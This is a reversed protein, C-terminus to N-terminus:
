APLGRRESLPIACLHLSHTAASKNSQDSAFLWPSVVAIRACEFASQTSRSSDAAVVRDWLCHSQLIQGDGQCGSARDTQRLIVFFPSLQQHHLQQLSQASEAVSSQVLFRMFGHNRRQQSRRPKAAVDPPVRMQQDGNQDVCRLCGGTGTQVLKDSNTGIPKVQDWRTGGPGVQNLRTVSPGM